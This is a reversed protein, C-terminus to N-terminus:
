QWDLSFLLRIHLFQANGCCFFSFVFFFKLDPIRESSDERQSEVSMPCSRIPSDSLVVLWFGGDGSISRRLPPCKKTRAGWVPKGLSIFVFNEGRSFDTAALNPTEKDTRSVPREKSPKWEFIYIFVRVWPTGSFFVSFFYLLRQLQTTPLMHSAVAYPAHFFSNSVKIKSAPPPLPFLRHTFRRQRRFESRRGGKRKGNLEAGLSSSRFFFFLSKEERGSLAM